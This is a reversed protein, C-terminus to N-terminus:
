GRWSVVVLGRAKGFQNRTAMTGALMSLPLWHPALKAAAVDLVLAWPRGDAAVCAGSLVSWHADWRGQVLRLMNVQLVAAPAAEEAACLGCESLLAAELAEAGAEGAVCRASLAPAEHDAGGGLGLAVAVEHLHAAQEALSVGNVLQRGSGLPRGERHRSEDLLAFLWEQTPAIAPARLLAKLAIATSALACWSGEQQAEYAEVLAASRAAWADSMRAAHAHGLESDLPVLATEYLAPDYERVADAPLLM